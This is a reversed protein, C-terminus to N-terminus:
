TNKSNLKVETVIVATGFYRSIVEKKEVPCCTKTPRQKVIDAVASTTVSVTQEKINDNTSASSFFITDEIDRPEYNDHKRKNWTGLM